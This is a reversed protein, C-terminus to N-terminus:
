KNIIGRLHQLADEAEQTKPTAECKPAANGIKFVLGISAQLYKNNNCFKALGQTTLGMNPYLWFNAGLGANFGVSNSTVNTAWPQRYTYGLGLISFPDFWKTEGIINNFDYKFNVDLFAFTHPNFGTSGIVLQSSWGKKMEKECAFKAPYFDFLKVGPFLGNGKLDDNIIDGGFSVMWPTKTLWSGFSRKETTTTEQAFASAGAFMLFAILAITVNKRKM